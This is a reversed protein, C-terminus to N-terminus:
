PNITLAILFPNLLLPEKKKEEPSLWKHCVCCKVVIFTSSFTTDEYPCLVADIYIDPNFELRCIRTCSRPLIQKPFNLNQHKESHILNCNIKLVTAKEKKKKKRVTAAM